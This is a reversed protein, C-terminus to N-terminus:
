MMSNAAARAARAGNADCTRLKVFGSAYRLRFSARTAGVRAAVWSRARIQDWASDTAKQSVVVMRRAVAKSIVRSNVARNDVKHDKSEKRVKNVRNDKKAKKDRSVKSAKNNARSIVKNNSNGM